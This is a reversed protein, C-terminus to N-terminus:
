TKTVESAADRRISNTGRSNIEISKGRRDEKREAYIDVSKTGGAMHRLACFPKSSFRADQCTRECTLETIGAENDLVICRRDMLYSSHSM